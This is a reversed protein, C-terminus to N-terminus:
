PTGGRPGPAPPASAPERLFAHIATWFGPQEHCDSHGRGPLTWLRVTGPNAAAALQRAQEVPVVTDEEGHVLLIRAKATGIVNVPAFRDFRAGIRLQLYELTLWVVPIYPVHRKEFEPRM